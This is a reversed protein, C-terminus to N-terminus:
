VRRWRDSRDLARLARAVERMLSEAQPSTRVMHRLIATMEAESSRALSSPQSAPAPSPVPTPAPLPAAVAASARHSPASWRVARAVGEIPAGPVAPPVEPPAPGDAEPPHLPRAAAVVSAM